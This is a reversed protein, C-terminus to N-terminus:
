VCCGIDDTSSQLTLLGFANLQNSVEVQRTCKWDRVRHFSSYVVFAERIFRYMYSLKFSTCTCCRARNSGQSWSCMPNGGFVLQVWDFCSRLNCWCSFLVMGKFELILFYVTSITGGWLTAILGYANCFHSSVLFNLVSGLRSLALTFGFAM